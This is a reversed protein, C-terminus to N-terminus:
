ILTLCNREQFIGWICIIALNMVINMLWVLLQITELVMQNGVIGYSLRLKLNDIWSVNRLFEEQNIRWALAISPFTGWKNNKGFRSSGDRRVAINMIYKDMLTYSARGM